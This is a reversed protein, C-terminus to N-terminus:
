LPDIGVEWLSGQIRTARLVYAEFRGGAVRELADIGQEAPQGDIELAREGRGTVTLM